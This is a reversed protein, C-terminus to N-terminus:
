CVCVCVCVCVCSRAVPAGVRDSCKQCMKKALMKRWIYVFTHNDSKSTDAHQRARAYGLPYITGDPTDFSFNFYLLGMVGTKWRVLHNSELYAVDTSDPVQPFVRFFATFLHMHERWLSVNQRLIPDAAARLAAACQEAGCVVNKALLKKFFTNLRAIRADTDNYAHRLCLTILEAM